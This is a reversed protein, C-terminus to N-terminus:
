QENGGTGSSVGHEVPSLVVLSARLVKEKLKYGRRVEHSVILPGSADSPAAVAEHFAPDFPEGVGPVVELGERALAEMVQDYTARLGALLGRESETEAPLALGADFSDLAPLLAGILREAGLERIQAQERLSRKRYNEFEAAKRQLQDLLDAATRRAESVEQVLVAMAEDPDDPLEVGLEAAGIPTTGQDDTAFEPELPEDPSADLNMEDETPTSM